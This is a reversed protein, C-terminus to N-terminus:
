NNNNNNDNTGSYLSAERARYEEHTASMVQLLSIQVASVHRLTNYHQTLV